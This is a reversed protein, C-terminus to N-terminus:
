HVKNEQRTKANVISLLGAFLFSRLLEGGFGEFITGTLLGPGVTYEHLEQEYM